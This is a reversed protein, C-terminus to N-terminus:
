KTLTLGLKYTVANAHQVGKEIWNPFYLQNFHDSNIYNNIYFVFKDQDKFVIYSIYLILLIKGIQYTSFNHPNEMTVIHM